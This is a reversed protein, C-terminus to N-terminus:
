AGTGKLEGSQLRVVRAGACEWVQDEHAAVLVAAGRINIAGLLGVVGSAAVPDLGALPEDAVLLWPDSVTARAVAVLRQEGGSLESPRANRKHAVGVETLARMIRRAPARARPRQVRCALAVNEFVSRDTLLATRQPIVGISRRLRAIEALTAAHANVGRVLVEGETPAELMLVLNLLTSKGSGTPGVVVVFDARGMRFSINRLADHGPGYSKSVGRLRIM